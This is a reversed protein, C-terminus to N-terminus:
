GTIDPRTTTVIYIHFFLFINFNILYWVYKCLIKNISVGLCYYSGFQNMCIEGVIANTMYTICTVLTNLFRDSEKRNSLQM